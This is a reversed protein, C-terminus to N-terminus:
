FSGSLKLSIQMAGNQLTVANDSIQTVVLGRISDGEHLLTDNIMCCRGRDTAMITLLELESQALASQNAANAGNLGRDVKFPNKTLEDVDIQEFNAFEYFKKVIRELSNFMQTKVGTIRAIATEIQVQEAQRSATEAAAATAPSSKKIMLWLCLVGVAFLFVLLYTSHRLQNKKGSVTFYEQATGSSKSGDASSTKPRDNDGVNGPESVGAQQDRQFSLM